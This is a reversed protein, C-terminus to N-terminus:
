LTPASPVLGTYNEWTEDLWNETVRDVLTQADETDKSASDAYKAALADIMDGEPVGDRGEEPILGEAEVYNRITDSAWNSIGAIFFTEAYERDGHMREALEKKIATKDTM